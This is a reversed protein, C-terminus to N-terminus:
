VSKKKKLYSHFTSLLYHLLVNIYDSNGHSCKMHIHLMYITNSYQRHMGQLLTSRDLFHAWSYVLSRLASRVCETFSVSLPTSMIMKLTIVYSTHIHTHDYSFRKLNNQVQINWLIHMHAENYFCIDYKFHYHNVLVITSMKHHMHLCINHCEQKFHITKISKWWETWIIQTRTWYNPHYIQM